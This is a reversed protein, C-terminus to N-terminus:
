PPASAPLATTADPSPPPDPARPTARQLGTIFDDVPGWDPVELRVVFTLVKPRFTVPLRAADKETTVLQADLAEADAELRALLAPSFPQHDDLPEARIIEAGEHRLSAFFKEPNGIGAFALVRAGQWDMGMQLPHLHGSIHPLDSIASQWDQQFDMQATSEGISLIADARSLGAPIKERLPGAPLCHGNGFGQSADVVILSFDKEVSPNQFGDDLIVLEAGAQEAAKVGAARDRAIWVPAFPAILLAEDGVLPADHNTLDVRLPGAERGGYGRTVVHPSLGEAQMRAILALVTPTKGTGGVNLNGVCLVPIGARYGQERCLRRATVAAYIAGLPSLLLAMLGPPRFWFRPARM